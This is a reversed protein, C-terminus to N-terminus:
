NNIFYFYYKNKYHKGQKIYKSVTSPAVIINEVSAIYKTLSFLSYFELEMNTVTNLLKVKPLGVIPKIVNTKKNILYKNKLLKNIGIYSSLTTTSVKLDIAAKRISSYESNLGDIKNLVIIAHGKEIDRIQFKLLTELSHKFGLGSGAFKLTNYNPNLLDFFHQEKELLINKDCYELIELNFNSYGFKLLAKVIKINGKSSKNALYESSFYNHFRKTLNISSGVYSDQTIKNVWRYVGSKNRNDKYIISKSSLLNNYIVAPKVNFTNSVNSNNFSSYYRKLQTNLYM